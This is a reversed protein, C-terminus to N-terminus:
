STRAETSFISHLQFKESYFYSICPFQLAPLSSIQSNLYGNILRALENEDDDGDGDGDDDDKM